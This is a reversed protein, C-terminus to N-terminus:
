IYLGAAIGGPQAYGCDLSQDKDSTLPLCSRLVLSQASETRPRLLLTLRMNCLHTAEFFPRSIHEYARRSPINIQRIQPADLFPSLEEAEFRSRKRTRMRMSDPIKYRIILRACKKTQNPWSLKTIKKSAPITLRGFVARPPSIKIVGCSDYFVDTIPMAKLRTKIRVAWFLAPISSAYLLPPVCPVAM